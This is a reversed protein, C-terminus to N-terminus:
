AQSVSVDVSLIASAPRLVDPIPSTHCYHFTDPSLVLCLPKSGTVDKDMAESSGIKLFQWHAIVEYYYYISMVCLLSIRACWAIASIRSRMSCRQQKLFVAANNMLWVLRRFTSGTWWDSQAGFHVPHDSFVIAALATVYCGGASKKSFKWLLLVYKQGAMLNYSWLHHYIVILKSQLHWCTYRTAIRMQPCKIHVSFFVLIECLNRYYNFPRSLM